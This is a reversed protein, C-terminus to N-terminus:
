KKKAQRCKWREWRDKRYSARKTQWQMNWTKDAGGGCLPKIHDVICGQAATYPCPHAAKFRRVEGRDRADADLAILLLALALIKM